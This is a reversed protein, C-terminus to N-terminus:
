VDEDDDGRVTYTSPRSQQVNGVLVAPPVRLQRIIGRHVTGHIEVFKPRVRGSPLFTVGSINAGLGAERRQGVQRGTPLCVSSNWGRSQKAVRVVIVLIGANGGVGSRDEKGTTFYTVWSSYTSKGKAKSDTLAENLVILRAEDGDDMMGESNEPLVVAKAEGLLPFGTLVVVDELTPCFEGWATVFTHSEM